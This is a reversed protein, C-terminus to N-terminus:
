FRKVYKFWLNYSIDGRRRITPENRLDAASRNLNAKPLIKM